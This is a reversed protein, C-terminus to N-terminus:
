VRDKDGASAYECVPVAGMRVRGIQRREQEGKGQDKGTDALQRENGRRPGRRIKEIEVHTSALGRGANDETQKNKIRKRATETKPM